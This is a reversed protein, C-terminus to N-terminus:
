RVAILAPSWVIAIGPEPKSRLTIWGRECAGSASSITAFPPPSKLSYSSVIGAPTHAKGRRLLIMAPSQWATRIISASFLLPVRMVERKAVSYLLSTPAIGPGSWEGVESPGCISRRRPAVRTRSLFSIKSISPRGLFSSAGVRISISSSELSSFFNIVRRVSGQSLFSNILFLLNSVLIAM